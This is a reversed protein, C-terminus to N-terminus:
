PAGPHGPALFVIVNGGDAGPLPAVEHWGCRRYFAVTDEAKRDTLLWARGDRAAAELSTDLLRRGLGTRRARARVALEDTQFAGVLLEAVRRPGLQAAVRWYSREVPFPAPTTWGTTFGDVGADSSAVVARFGPRLRDAGLRERYEEAAGASENWPPASFVEEYVDALSAMVDAVDAVEPGYIRM